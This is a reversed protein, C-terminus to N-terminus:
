NITIKLSHGNKELKQFQKALKQLEFILNSASPGASCAGAPSIAPITNLLTIIKQLVQFNMRLYDYLPTHFVPHYKNGGKTSLISILDSSNIGINKDLQINSYDSTGENQTWISSSTNLVFKNKGKGRIGIEYNTNNQTNYATTNKPKANLIVGFAKEVNDWNSLSNLEPTTRNFIDENSLETITDFYIRGYYPTKTDFIAVIVISNVEPIDVFRHSIPLCWPLLADGEEKTRDVYFVDDIIPIRVKIRNLNQSDQNAIVQAFYFLRSLLSENEITDNVIKAKLSDEFNSGTIRNM